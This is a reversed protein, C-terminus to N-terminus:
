SGFILGLVLAILLFGFTLTLMVPLSLVFALKIKQWSSLLLFVESKSAHERSGSKDKPNNHGLQIRLLARRTSEIKAALAAMQNDSCEEPNTALLEKVQTQLKALIGQLVQEEEAEIKCRKIRFDNKAHLGQLMDDLDSVTRALEKKRQAVVSRRVVQDDSKQNQRNVTELKRVLEKEESM